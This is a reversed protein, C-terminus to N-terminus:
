QFQLRKDLLTKVKYKFQKLKFYHKIERDNTILCDNLIHWINTLKRRVQHLDHLEWVQGNIGPNEGM